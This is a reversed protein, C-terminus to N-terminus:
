DRLEVGLRNLWLHGFRQDARRHLVLDFGLASLHKILQEPRGRHYEILIRGVRNWTEPASDLIIAYEAGECDLKLLDIPACVHKELLGDFTLADVLRWSDTSDEPMTSNSPDSLTPFLVQGQESGIVKMLCSARDQLHNLHLNRRLLDFSDAAPEVAYVYAAGNTLAYLSFAGINAGVDVVLAGKPIEGYDKRVFVCFLTVVDDPCDSTAIQLGDRLQVKREKLPRRFLYSYLIQMPERFVFLAKCMYFLHRPSQKLAHMTRRRSRGFLFKQRNIQHLLAAVGVILGFTLLIKDMCLDLSVIPLIYQLMTWCSQTASTQGARCSSSPNSERLDLVIHLDTFRRRLGIAMSLLSFPPLTLVSSEVIERVRRSYANSACLTSPCISFRKGATTPRRQPRVTV